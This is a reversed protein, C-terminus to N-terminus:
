HILHTDSLKYLSSLVECVVLLKKDAAARNINQGQTLDTASLANSLLPEVLVDPAALKVAGNLHKDLTGLFWGFTVRHVSLRSKM